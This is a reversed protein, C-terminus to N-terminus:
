GWTRHTEAIWELGDYEQICWDIDAPIEIIALSAYDGDAAGGLREVVEVLTKDDRPVSSSGYDRPVMVGSKFVDGIICPGGWNPDGSIERGLLVGVRSVSFGGHCRNVVVKRTIEETM